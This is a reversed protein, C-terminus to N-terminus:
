SDFVRTCRGCKRVRREGDLIRRIRVGRKCDPCYLMLNSQAMSGEKEVIAGKPNDQSKRLTKKILNLGEVVARGKGPLLYLVRGTKGANAGSVAIVVDNKKIRGSSV